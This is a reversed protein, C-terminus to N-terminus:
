KDNVTNAVNSFSFWHIVQLKSKYKSLSNVLQHLRFHVKATREEDIGISSM